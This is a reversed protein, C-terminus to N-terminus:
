LLRAVAGLADLDFQARMGFAFFDADGKFDLRIHTSGRNFGYFPDDVANNIAPGTGAFGRVYIVPLRGDDGPFGM